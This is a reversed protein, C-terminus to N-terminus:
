SRKELSQLGASALASLVAVAILTELAGPLAIISGAGLGLDITSGTVRAIGGIGSYLVFFFIFSIVLTLLLRAGTSDNIKLAKLISPIFMILLGFVLSVIIKGLLSGNTLQVGNVVTIIFFFLLGNVLVTYVNKM